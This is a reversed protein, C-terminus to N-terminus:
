SRDVYADVSDVMEDCMKSLAKFLKEVKELRKLKNPDEQVTTSEKKMTSKGAKRTLRQNEPAPNNPM